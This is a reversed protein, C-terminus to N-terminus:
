PRANVAKARRGPAVQRYYPSPSALILRNRFITRLANSKARTTATIQPEGQHRAFVLSLFDAIAGVGSRHRGGPSCERSDVLPGSFAHIDGTWRIRESPARLDFPDNDSVQVGGPHAMRDISSAFRVMTRLILIFVVVTAVAALCLGILRDEGATLDREAM